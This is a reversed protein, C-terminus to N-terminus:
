SQVERCEGDVEITLSDWPHGVQWAAWERAAADQGAEDAPVELEAVPGAVGAEQMLRVTARTTENTTM